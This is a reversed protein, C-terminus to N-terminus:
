GDMMVLSTDEHDLHTSHPVCIHDFHYDSTTKLKNLTNMYDTLNEVVTSPSGLIIDGSFLISESPQTDNSNHKLLFSM